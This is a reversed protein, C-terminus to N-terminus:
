DAEAVFEWEDAGVDSADSLSEDSDESDSSSSMAEWNPAEAGEGEVANGAVAPAGPVGAALANAPLDSQKVFPRFILYSIFCFSIPLLQLFTRDLRGDGEKLERRDMQRLKALAEELQERMVSSQDAEKTASTVPCSVPPSPSIKSAEELLGHKEELLGDIRAQKERSRERLRRLTEKLEQKEVFLQQNEQSLKLNARRQGEGTAELEQISQRSEDLLAELRENEMKMEELQERKKELDARERKLADQLEHKEAVTERIRAMKEQVEQRVADQHKHVRERVGALTDQTHRRVKKFFSDAGEKLCGWGFGHRGRHHCAEALCTLVLVALVFRM